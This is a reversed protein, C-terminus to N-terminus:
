LRLGLTRYVDATARATAGWSLSHVRERGRQALETRRSPDVVLSRLTDTLGDVDGPRFTEAGDQAIEVVAPVPTSVVPAGCAMAEVPPLGFGEYRSAYGVVTAAGYLAPLDALPVHGIEVTGAPPSHGWLRQGTLVLPISVRRCAEALTAIDKRPEINGVHLVFPDSLGYHARVRDREEESPPAMGPSPAEHVVVADLGLLDKIREATFSSVAIIADARRLTHRLLFREGAVRHRPFAWPTDFIALDHVTSVTPGPRRVPLDVDLGHTLDARGFGIAGTLARRVGGADGKLLPTIGPPLESVGSPRVAAVLAASLEPVMAALLERIYTSVGGGRSDLPLANYVVRPLVRTVTRGALPEAPHEAPHPAPHPPLDSPDSL